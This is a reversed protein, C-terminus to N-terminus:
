DGKAQMDQYAQMVAWLLAKSPEADCKAKVVAWIGAGDTTAGVIHNRANAANLGSWYGLIWSKTGFDTVPNTAWSACSRTGQGLTYVPQAAAARVQLALLAACLATCPLLRISHLLLNSPPGDRLRVPSAPNATRFIAARGVSGPLSRVRFVLRPLESHNVFYARM